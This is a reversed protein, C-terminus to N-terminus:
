RAPGERDPTAAVRVGDRLRQQGAVVVLDSPALGDRIEVERDIPAGVTVRRGYVRRDAPTYVFVLTAGEADRVIADGPVTLARTIEAGTIRAEAIMGPLLARAPNPVTLKVPYTRSAPDAAVGIM